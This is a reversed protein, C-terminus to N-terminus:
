RLLRAVSLDLGSQVMRSESDATDASIALRAILQARTAEAIQDLAGTVWRSATSEHVRYLKGIQALELGEVFRLRLIARTRDPLGAIASSLAERFETRYLARLHRLEPDPERDVIDALVDDSAAREPKADRRANLAMRRAAIAVWARLPGTGRYSTIRPTREARDDSDGVVLRVRTRQAIEDVFAPDADIARVAAALDTAVHEDFRKTAVPDGAGVGYALALDTAHAPSAGGAIAARVHVLVDDISVRSWRAAMAEVDDRWTEAM